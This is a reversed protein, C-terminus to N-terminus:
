CWIVSMNMNTIDEYCSNTHFTNPVKDINTHMNEALFYIPISATLLDYNKWSILTMMILLSPPLRWIFEVTVNLM